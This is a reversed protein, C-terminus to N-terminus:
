KTNWWGSVFSSRTFEGMSPSKLREAIALCVVEDLQVNLDQLYSMAGNIGITDPNEDPSDTKTLKRINYYLLKDNWVEISILYNISLM